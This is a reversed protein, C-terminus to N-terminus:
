GSVHSSLRSMLQGDELVLRTQLVLGRKLQGLGIGQDLLKVFISLVLGLSVSPEFTSTVKNIGVFILDRQLCM